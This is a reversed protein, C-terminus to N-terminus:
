NKYSKLLKDYYSRKLLYNSNTSAFSLYDYKNSSNQTLYKIGYYVKSSEAIYSKSYIRIQATDFVIDCNDLTIYYGDKSELFMRILSYNVYDDSPAAANLSALTIIADDQQTWMNEMKQTWSQDLTISQNNLSAKLAKSKKPKISNIKIKGSDPIKVFSDFLPDDGSSVLGIEVCEFVANGKADDIRKINFFPIIVDYVFTIDGGFQLMNSPVKLGNESLSVNKIYGETDPTIDILKERRSSFEYLLDHMYNVIDIDESNSYDAFVVNEGTMEFHNANPDITFFTAVIKEPLNQSAPAYYRIQFASSGYSLIGIYSERSFSNDRYYVFEGSKDEIFSNFGPFAFLGSLFFATAALFTILKKM